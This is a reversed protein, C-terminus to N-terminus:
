PPIAVSAGMIKDPQLPFKDVYDKLHLSIFEKHSRIVHAHIDAPMRARIPYKSGSELFPRM